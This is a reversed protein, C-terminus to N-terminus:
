DSCTNVTPFERQAPLFKLLRQVPVVNDTAFELNKGYIGAPSGALMKLGSVRGTQISAAWTTAKKNKYRYFAGNGSTTFYKSNYIIDAKKNPIYRLKHYNCPRNGILHSTQLRRFGM